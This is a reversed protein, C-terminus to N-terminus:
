KLTALARDIRSIVEDQGLIEFIDFMGPGMGKGTVAVRMQPAVKGFGLSNEELTTENGLSKLPADLLTLM